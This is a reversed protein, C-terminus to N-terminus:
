SRLEAGLQDKLGTVIRQMTDAVEDDVLTRTAHQLILALAISKFGPTIGKGQYVDFIFVDKLWDGACARITDQIDKAPIAENVLLALDRRIEPFKSFEQFHALPATSLTKLDLEFVFVKGTIDLKQLILPHILGLLGIKKDAVYIGASQGQHLVPSDERKFDINEDPFSLRVLDYVDGKLDFFDVERSAVDWQEPYAFGAILGALRAQQLLKNQRTLFCTGLEFLRIRHQQRSKNYLFTKMLGSWLNTRMVTMDATIPNVLARAKENPSLLNQLANDVFSYSIVEHYSRDALFERFSRYDKDNQLSANVELKAKLGHTPIHDYGYLRAIEEILDQAIHLDSRYSPITVQWAQEDYVWAFNLANLIAEIKKDNITIGLLRHIKDKPLSIKRVKPLDNPSRKEIIPGADGGVAEVILQTVREIALRQIQDDVGREYRHASDSNLNYFQRQRAIAEPTFYASELFIANTLSTVGSDLGGMVGAIALITEEDAIVLTNDDLTKISGDLLTLKEGSTSLRIIIKNNITELDFAHMPQGLELMVYNVADVIPNISRIGSRRIREKLWIPTPRDVKVNRIIRGIYLPCQQPANVEVPLTDAISPSVPHISPEILPCATLASVERAIGKVSLCDGRNPTISIDIVFDDLSLYHWLLEGLPANEPLELIGEGTQALGLEVASCLMGESKVGRLTSTKIHVQHPLKAGDLALAVKLQPRVNQAGCVIQLPAEEKQIRVQCVQLREAAPHPTVAIVEGIVVRSFDEAVPTFSEVELGAMTLKDCLKALSIDPNAWERLWTESCKM